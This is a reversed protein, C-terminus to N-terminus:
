GSLLHYECLSKPHNDRWIQLKNEMDAVLNVYQDRSPRTVGYLTSHIQITLSTHKFMEIAVDFECAEVGDETRIIEKETIFQDDVREPYEVDFDGDRISM